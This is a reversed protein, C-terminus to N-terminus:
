WARFQQKGLIMGPYDGGIARRCVKRWTVKTAELKEPHFQFTVQPQLNSSLYGEEEFRM